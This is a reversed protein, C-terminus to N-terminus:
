ATACEGCASSFSTTSSAFASGFGLSSARWAAAFLGPEPPDCLVGGPISGEGAVSLAFEVGVLLPLVGFAFSPILEVPAVTPPRKSGDRAPGEACRGAGSRGGM